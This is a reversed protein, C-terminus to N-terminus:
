YTIIAISGPAHNLFGLYTNSDPTSWMYRGYEGVLDKIAAMMDPYEGRFEVEFNADADMEWTRDAECPEYLEIPGDPLTPVEGGLWQNLHMSYTPSDNIDVTM